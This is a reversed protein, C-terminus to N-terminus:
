PTSFQLLQSKGFKHTLGPASAFNRISEANGAKTAQEKSTEPRPRSPILWIQIKM